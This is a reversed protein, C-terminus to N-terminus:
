CTGKFHNKKLQVATYFNSCNKKKVKRLKKWICTITVGFIFNFHDCLFSTFYCELTQERTREGFEFRM